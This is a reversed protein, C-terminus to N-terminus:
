TNQLADMREIEFLTYVDWESRTVGGFPDITERVSFFRAPDAIARGSSVWWGDPLPDGVADVQIYGGEELLADEVREEFVELTGPTLAQLYVEFPLAHDGVQGHPLPQAVATDWYLRRQRDRVRKGDSSRDEWPLETASQLYQLITPREV